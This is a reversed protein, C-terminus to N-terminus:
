HAILVMGYSTVATIRVTRYVAAPLRSRCQVRHASLYWNLWGERTTFTAEGWLATRVTPAVDSNQPSLVLPFGFGGSVSTQAPLMQPSVVILIVALGFAKAALM